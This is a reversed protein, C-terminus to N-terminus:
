LNSMNIIVQKEDQSKSTDLKNFSNTISQYENNNINELGVSRYNFEFCRLFSSFLVVLISSTSMAITSILPSVKLGYQCFCGAALPIMFFNYSFAWFLNIYIFIKSRKVLNFIYVIKWLNEDLIVIDSAMLNLESKANISVGLCAEELSLIDNLGDGVMMVEKKYNQRLSILLDKKMQSDCEGYLNEKKIGLHRGVQNVTQKSDGSLIFVEKKLQKTLYDIVQKAEPRLNNTNHLTITCCINQNTSMIIVTSGNEQVNQIQEILQSSVDINNERILNLNGILVKIQKNSKKIQLLTCEIGNKFQKFSNALLQFDSKFTSCDRQVAEKYLLEALPHNVDKEVHQIMQWIQSDTFQNDSLNCFEDVKNAKTFLTGTKDFVIAKIKGIKEFVTNKKILISNKMALNLSTAIVSPIALGLACPCSAVLVSIFREVPFCWVCSSPIQYIDFIAILSWAILTFTAIIIITKVFIESLKKLLASIGSESSESNSQALNLQKSTQYLLSDEITHNIQAIAEGEIIEAGSRLISGKQVVFPDNQGYLIQDTAKINSSIIQVITVDNLLRFPAKLKIFEDKDVYSVDVTRQNDIDFKKNKPEIITVQTNKLLQDEPFLKDTMDLISKKVKGEQYKGLTIIALILSASEMMHVIESIKMSRSHKQQDTLQNSGLVENYDEFFYTLLLFVTLLLSSFCGISVLTEMNMAHYKRYNTITNLFIRKGFYYMTFSTLIIMIIVYITMINMSYPFLAIEQFFEFHPLVMTFLTFCVMIIFAILVDRMKTAQYHSKPKKFSEIYPNSDINSNLFQQQLFDHIDAAKTAKPNYQICIIGKDSQENIETIGSFKQKLKQKLDENSTQLLEDIQQGDKKNNLNIKFYVKRNSNKSQSFLQIEEFESIVKFGLSRIKNSIDQIDGQNTVNILVKESIINVSISQISLYDTLNQVIKNRCGTCHIGQLQAEYVYVKKEGLEIDQKLNNNM